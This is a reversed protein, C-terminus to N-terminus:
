LARVEPDLKEKLCFSTVKERISMLSEDKEKGVGPPAAADADMEVPLDDIPEAPMGPTGATPATPTAEAAQEVGGKDKPAALM